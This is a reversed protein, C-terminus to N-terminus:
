AAPRGMACLGARLWCPLKAIRHYDVREAGFSRFSAEIPRHMSGEFDFIATHAAAFEILNWMLLVNGGSSSLAPDHGGTLYYGRSRDWVFFVAAHVKGERDEASLCLGADRARAARYLRRLYELAYPPSKRQRQFTQQSAAYVREPGCERVLLGLRQAKRINTRRAPALNDWLKKLDTLDDLVYTYHTTQTFGHWYFPLWNRHAPHFAQVFIREQAIRAAFADLIEMERSEVTVRKGSSAAMVVGLTQTLKPMCCVRLGLRQEYHLPMGAILRGSDFYGLICVQGSAAQLWWSRSFISRQPSRELLADWEAIDKSSLMSLGSRKVPAPSLDRAPGLRSLQPESGSTGQERPRPSPTEMEAASVRHTAEM